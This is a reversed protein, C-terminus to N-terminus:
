TGGGDAAAGPEADPVRGAARLEEAAERWEPMEELERVVAAIAPDRASHHLLPGVSYLTAEYRFNPFERRLDAVTREREVGAAALRVLVEVANGQTWDYEGFAVRRLVPLAAAGFQYFLEFIAFQWTSLWGGLGRQEYGFGPPEPRPPSHFRTALEEIAAPGLERAVAAARARFQEADDILVAVSTVATDLATAM